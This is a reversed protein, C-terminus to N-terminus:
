AVRWVRVGGEVSRQTFKKPARTANIQTINSSMSTRKTGEVFFSDGVEMSDWPFKTRKRGDEKKPLPVSKEIQIM